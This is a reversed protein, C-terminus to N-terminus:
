WGCASKSNSFKLGNELCNTDLRRSSLLEQEKESLKLDTLGVISTISRILNNLYKRVNNSHFELSFQRCNAVSYMQCHQFHLLNSSLTTTLTASFSRQCHHQLHKGFLISKSSSTFSITIITFSFASKSEIPQLPWSSLSSSSSPFQNPPLSVTTTSPPQEFHHHFLNTNTSWQGTIYIYFSSWLIQKNNTIRKIM